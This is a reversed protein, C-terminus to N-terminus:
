RLLGLCFYAEKNYNDTYNMYQDVPTRTGTVLRLIIIRM